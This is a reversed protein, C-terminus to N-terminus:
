LSVFGSSERKLSSVRLERECLCSMEKVCFFAFVRLRFFGLGRLLSVVWVRVVFFFLSGVFFFFLVCSAREKDFEVTTVFLFCVEAPFFSWQKLILFLGLERM